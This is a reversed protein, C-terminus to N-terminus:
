SLSHGALSLPQFFLLCLIITTCALTLTCDYQPLTPQPARLLFASPNFTQSGGGGWIQLHRRVVAASVM